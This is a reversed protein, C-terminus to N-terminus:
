QGPGRLQRPGHPRISGHPHSPMGPRGQQGPRNNHLQQQRQQMEQQRQQFEQQRQQQEQQRQQEQRQQEERRQQDKQQREQQKKHLRDLMGEMKFEGSRLRLREIQANVRAAQAMAEPGLQQDVLRDQETLGRQGIAQMERTLAEGQEELARLEPLAAEASPRDHISELVDAIRHLAAVIERAVTEFRSPGAPASNPTAQQPQGPNAFGPQPNANPMGPQMPAGVQAPPDDGAVQKVVEQVGIRLAIRVIIILIIVGVSGLGAMIKGGLPKHDGRSARKPTPAVPAPKRVTRPQAVSAVEAAALSDLSSGAISDLEDEFFSKEVKPASGNAPSATSGRATAQAVVAATRQPAPRAAAAPPAAAPKPKAAPSLPRAGTTPSAKVAAPAVAAPVTFKTECKSCKARKGALEAAIQYQKQCHPCAVAIKM